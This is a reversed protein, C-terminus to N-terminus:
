VVSKRDPQNILQLTLTAPTLDSAGNNDTATYLIESYGVYTGSPKFTLQTAQLPTLIQGAFLPVKNVFVTCQTAPPVSVVTYSVISGNDTAEMNCVATMDANSAVPTCIKTIAVPPPNVPIIYTAPSLDRLGSNDAVTYTFSANGAFGDAPDFKLTKMLRPTLLLEGGPLTNIVVDPTSVNDDHDYFLVGGAPLTKIIYTTVFGDEDTGALPVPDGIPQAGTGNPNTIIPTSRDLAVPPVVSCIEIDFDQYYQRGCGDTITCTITCNTCSSVMPATFVTVTDFPNSFTGGCSSTWNYTYNSSLNGVPLVARYTYTTLSTLNIPGIINPNIAKDYVSMYSFNFFARMAAVADANGKNINHGGEYMVKGRSSDGFARGYVIAAAEGPSLLPVNPHTLNYAAVKTTTRWTTTKPLFIQESGNQMAADAVGMFQMEADNPFRYQYPPTGDAHSGYHVLGNQSLFNMKQTSDLPNVLNELVSVAHCGAWIWGRSNQNWTLLNSHTSWTPDAHPMVFIDDCTNLENPYKKPYSASPIDADKLFDLAISGNQFDFTWRPSYKLNYSVNVNFPSTTTNGIVGQSQWYSIRANVATSRFKAPIIFTGGKYDIGNYSFDIGDKVKVPSIVWKVQVRYNKILDHIMGWSKIGNNYTQPTVGMNVIFSGTRIEEIQAYGTFFSLFFIITILAKEKPVFKKM